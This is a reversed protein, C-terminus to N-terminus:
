GDVTEDHWERVCDEKTLKYKVPATKLTMLTVTVAAM